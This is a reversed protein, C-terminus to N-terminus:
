FVRVARVRKTLLKSQDFEPSVLFFGRAWAYRDDFETSSWYFDEIFGGLGDEHLNTYILNLEATSPLFWDDYGNLVLDDCLRAAIFVDGCNNVIATTNDAGSGIDAGPGSPPDSTVNPAGPIDTFMCGWEANSSQDSAAAVLGEFSYANTTDIFFILGGQYTKGYIADLAVGGNFLVFPTQGGDLLEQITFGGDILDEITLGGDILDQISLGGGTLDQVPIQFDILDQNTYGNNLLSQIMAPPLSTCNCLTSTLLLDTQLSRTEGPTGGNMAQWSQNAADYYYYGATSINATTTNGSGSGAIDDVYVIAGDQDPGYAAVKAELQTLTLVPVQVGDATTPSEPNGQVQLSTKPDTTGLGVHGSGVGIFM